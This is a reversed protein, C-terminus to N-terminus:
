FLKKFIESEQIDGVTFTWVFIHIAHLGIDQIICLRGIFSWAEGGAGGACVGM